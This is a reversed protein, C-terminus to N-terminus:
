LFTAKRVRPAIHHYRVDDNLKYSWTAPATPDLALDEASRSANTATKSTWPASLIGILNSTLNDNFRLSVLLEMRYGIIETEEDITRTLLGDATNIMVFDNALQAVLPAPLLGSLASVPVDMRGPFAMDDPFISGLGIADARENLATLVKSRGTALNTDTTSFLLEIM